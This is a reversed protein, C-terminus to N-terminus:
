SHVGKYVPVNEEVICYSWLILQNEETLTEWLHAGVVALGILWSTFNNEETLTEWLHADVVALGISWAIFHNEERRTEWLHAGVALGNFWAILHNEWDMQGHESTIKKEWHKGSTHVLLPLDM